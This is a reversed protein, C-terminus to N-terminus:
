KLMMWYGDIGSEPRNLTKYTIVFARGAMSNSGLDAIPAGILVDSLFDSDFNGSSVSYGCRGDSGGTIRVPINPNNEAAIVKQASWSSSGKLIYVAGEQSYSSNESHSYAGIFLDEPKSGDYQCVSLAMGFSDYDDEGYIKVDWNSSSITITSGATWTTKGYLIYVLGPDEYRGQDSNAQLILDDIGDGNLDGSAVAQGISDDEHSGYFTLDPSQSSLNITQSSNNGFIVCVRGRYSNYFSPGSIPIGVIMDDLNDGNIDGSGVVQGLGDYPDRNNLKVKVRSSSLIDIDTTPTDDGGAIVYATGKGSNTYGAVVILDEYSDDNFYGSSIDQGFTDGSASGGIIVDPSDTSLDITTGNSFDKGFFIYVSGAGTRSKYDAGDAGIIIDGKGDGNFDAIAVSEGFNNYDAAGKFAVDPTDSDLFVENDLSSPNVFLFAYEPETFATGLLIDDIGDNNVDGSAVDFGVRQDSTAGYIIIDSKESASFDTIGWSIGAFLLVVTFMLRNM